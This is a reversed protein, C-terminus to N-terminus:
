QQGRNIWAEIVGGTPAADNWNAGVLSLRGSGGFEALRISHSGTRAVEQRSWSAGEGDNYYVAVSQPSSAQHMKAVVVDLQGDGDVDGLALGHSHDMDAEIVHEVWEPQTPDDPAAYWALRGAGESPTLVIELRGDGDVDGAQVMVDGQTWCTDFHEEPMYRCEQWTGDPDGDPNRYWRGGIVVDAFGDGDIDAVALGEGHPCEFTRMSWESASRQFWLYIRNGMLHKFGSQHRTVLDLRGDGNLDVAEVNHMKAGEDSINIAEWTDASPDKGAGCPNRYIMLGEHSPIVIDGFGDGNMDAITMDTTFSGDDIKCKTWEQGRYWYLGGERASAAAVDPEGDGDLDAVAKCHPDRPNSGDIVVHEFTCFHQSM